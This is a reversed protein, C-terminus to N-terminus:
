SHRIAIVPDVSAAISAPIIGALIGMVLSLLVGFAVNGASVTFTLPISEKDVLLQLLEVGGWVLLMGLAGGVICLIVAEVLFQFLVFGKTAGLAKQIGIERTRERVSIYMMLGISILGIIVAFISMLMGGVRLASFISEVQTMLMEQKNISFNDEVSPKLGRSTRMLGILESEVYPLKDYSVAKVTMIKEISWMDMRYSKAFSRYPIFLAEDESPGLTWVKVLLYVSWWYNNALM